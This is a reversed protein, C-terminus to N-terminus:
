KLVMFSVFIFHLHSYVFWQRAMIVNGHFLRSIVKQLLVQNVFIIKFHFNHLWFHDWSSIVLFMRAFVLILALVIVFDSNVEPHWLPVGPVVCAQFRGESNATPHAITTIKKRTFTIVSIRDRVSLTHRANKSCRYKATQCTPSELLKARSRLRKSQISVWHFAKGIALQKGSPSRAVTSSRWSRTRSKSGPMPARHWRLQSGAKRRNRRHQVDDNKRSQFKQRVRRLTLKRRRRLLPAQRLRLRRVRPSLANARIDCKQDSWKRGLLCCKSHLRVLSANKSTRQLNVDLALLRWTRKM